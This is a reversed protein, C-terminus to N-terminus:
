RAARRPSTGRRARLDLDLDLLEVRLLDLDDALDRLGPRQGILVPHREHLRDGRGAPERREGVRIVHLQDADHRPPLDTFAIMLTSAIVSLARASTFSWCPSVMLTSWRRKQPAPARVHRAQEKEQRAARHEHRRAGAGRAGVLPREREVLLARAAIEDGLHRAERADGLELRPEQEVHVRRVHLRGVPHRDRALDVRLERAVVADDDDVAGVRHRVRRARERQHEPRKRLRDDERARLLRDDLDPGVRALVEDVSREDRREGTGSTHMADPDRASRPTARSWARRTPSRRTRSASGQRREDLEADADLDAGCTGAGVGSAASKSSRSSGRTRATRTKGPSSGSRTRPAIRSPTRPSTSSAYPVPM